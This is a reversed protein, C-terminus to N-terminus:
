KCVAGVLSKCIQRYEYDSEERIREKKKQNVRTECNEMYLYKYDPM